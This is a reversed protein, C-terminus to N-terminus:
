FVTNLDFSSFTQLYVLLMNKNESSMNIFKLGCISTDNTEPTIHVIQGELLIKNDNIILRMPKLIEGISFKDLKTIRIGIGKIAIDVVDFEIDDFIVKVNDADEVPVRFTQRIKKELGLEYFSNELNGSNEGAKDDNILSDFIDNKPADKKAM